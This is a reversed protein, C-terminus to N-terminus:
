MDGESRQLAAVEEGSLDMPEMSANRVAEMVAPSNNVKRLIERVASVAEPPVWAPYFIGYWGTVNYDTVGEERLTPVNPLLGARVDGTM